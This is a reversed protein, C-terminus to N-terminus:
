STGTIKGLVFHVIFQAMAVIVLGVLAFIISQQAATIKSSEGGATTYRFGGIIIMVVSVIGVLLSFFNIVNSMVQSVKTNAATKGCVGGGSTSANTGNCINEEISVSAYAVSPALVPVALVGVAMAALFIAKISKLM